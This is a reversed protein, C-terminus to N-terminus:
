NSTAKQYTGQIVTTINGGINKLILEQGNNEEFYSDLVFESPPYDTTTQTPFVLLGDSCGPASYTINVLPKFTIDNGNISNTL